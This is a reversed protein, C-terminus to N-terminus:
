WKSANNINQFLHSACGGVLRWKPVVSLEFMSPKAPFNTSCEDRLGDDRSLMPPVLRTAVVWIWAWNVTILRDMIVPSLIGDCRWHVYRLIHLLLSLTWRQFLRRVWGSRRVLKFNVCSVLSEVRSLEVAAWVAGSPMEVVDGLRTSILRACWLGALTIILTM